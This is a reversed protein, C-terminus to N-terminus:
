EPLWPGYITEELAAHQGARSYVNSAYDSTLFATFM